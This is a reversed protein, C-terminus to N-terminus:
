VPQRSEREKEQEQWLDAYLGGEALLQQHTGHEIIRGDDLVLIRDASVVTSLRHAIILTSRGSSIEDLNTQIDSETASDLSSTAEDFFFVTPNKLVARAIAVRQKEGGSLKLGREGVRTQYGSPLQSIFDHIRATRAAEYIHQEEASPDGYAINYYITDNFLVTDQPVVGIADRLSAQTIEQLDLGDVAIRGSNPDYFRLLLRSITSKGAGTPGVIAVKEGANVQFSIGHLIVRQADYGFHVDTFRIDGRPSSLPQAGPLDKIEPVEELLTFMNEMDVLAQRIERYVTGLFNLPISLQMLYTNVVVFGGVTMTGNRINLAAMILMITIGSIVVAAQSVNLLSLSERSKVAAQEYTKLAEDVRTLEHSENNFYRVTEFNLLSDVQRTSAENEADNMKRRIRIRWATIGFTLWVYIGITVATVLAYSIGYLYWLIGCVLLVEFLTPLINFAVFSLLFQIGTTGRDIFRNLAGTKRELHFRISLAHLHNFVKIAVQRVAHQSVKSFVADRIENFVIYSLRALGYAALAAIPIGFLLDMQGELNSLTDVAWGLVLPVTLNALKALVLSVVAVVVRTKLDKREVPWFFPLLLACTKWLNGNEGHSPSVPATDPETKM